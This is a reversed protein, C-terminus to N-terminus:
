RSKKRTLLMMFLMFGFLYSSNPENVTITTIPSYDSNFQFSLIDHDGGAAGTGSTFGIYVESTDLTDLLDISATVTALEPRETTQSIRAEMIDNLGDYDIWATWVAGNNMRESIATQEISYVSGDVDIGIHNGNNQDLHANNWTDFEVAISNPIGNYGIFGGLGGTLSSSAQMVFTLGDAGQGDQDSIGQPDTIQFQFAASFSSENQLFLPDKYFASGSQWLDDTLSLVGNSNPNLTAASGNLQFNALDSFDLFTLSEAHLFSSYSILALAFINKKM